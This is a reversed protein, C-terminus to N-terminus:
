ICSPSLLSYIYCLSLPSYTVYQTGKEKQTESNTTLVISYSDLTAVVGVDIEEQKNNKAQSFCVHM